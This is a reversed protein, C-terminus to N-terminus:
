SCTTVKAVFGEEIAHLHEHLKQLGWMFVIEPTAYHGRAEYTVESVATDNGPCFTYRVNSVAYRQSADNSDFASAFRADFTADLGNSRPGAVELTTAVAPPQFVHAIEVHPPYVFVGFETAANAAAYAHTSSKFQVDSGKISKASLSITRLSAKIAHMRMVNINAPKSCRLIVHKLKEELLESPLAHHFPNNKVEVADFAWVPTHVYLTKRIVNAIRLSIPVSFEVRVTQEGHVTQIRVFMRISLIVSHDITARSFFIALRYKKLLSLDVYWLQPKPCFVCLHVCM